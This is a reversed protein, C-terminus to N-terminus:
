NRQGFRYPHDAQWLAIERRKEATLNAYEAPTLSNIYEQTVAQGNTNRAPSTAGGGTLPAQQKNSLNFEKVMAKFTADLNTLNGADDRELANRDLLRQALKPDIGQQIAHLQIAASTREDRLSQALDDREKQLAALQQDRQQTARDRKETDTLNQAEIQEKFAKLEALTADSDKLRKRLNVAESRLKKADEHSLTETGDGVQPDPTGVQPKPPNEADGAQPDTTIEEAM